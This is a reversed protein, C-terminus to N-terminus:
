PFLHSEEGLNIFKHSSNLGCSFYCCLFLHPYYSLINVIYRSSILLDSYRYSCSILNNTSIIEVSSYIRGNCINSDRLGCMSRLVLVDRRDSKNPLYYFYFLENSIKNKSIRLGRGWVKLMTSKEPYYEKLM